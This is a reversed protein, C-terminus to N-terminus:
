RYLCHYLKLIFVYFITVFIFLKSNKFLLFIKQGDTRLKLAGEEVRQHEVKLVFLFPRYFDRTKRINRGRYATCYIIGNVVLKIWCCTCSCCRDQLAKLCSLCWCTWRITSYKYQLLDVTKTRCVINSTFFSLIFYKQLDQENSVTTFSGRFYNQFYDCTLMEATTVSLVFLMAIWMHRRIISVTCYFCVESLLCFLM